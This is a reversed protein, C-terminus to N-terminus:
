FNHVTPTAAFEYRNMKPTKPGSLDESLPRYISGSHKKETLQTSWLPIKLRPLNARHMNFNNNRRLVCLTIVVSMILVALATLVFVSTISLIYSVRALNINEGDIIEATPADDLLDDISVDDNDAEDDYNDEEEEDDDDDEDEDDDDDIASDDAEGKFASLKQLDQLTEDINDLDEESDVGEDINFTMEPCIGKHLDLWGNPTFNDIDDMLPTDAIKESNDVLNVFRADLYNIVNCMQNDFVFLNDHLDIISLQPVVKMDEISLSTLQNEGLYLRKVSELITANNSWLTYLKCNRADIKNIAKNNIFNGPNLTMLPNGAINLTELNRNSNFAGTLVKLKNYSVDLLRLSSIYILMDDIFTFNNYSLNLSVITPMHKFTEPHGTTLGCNKCSFIYTEFQHNNSLTFNPLVEFANDDLIIKRLKFNFSFIENELKTLNNKSLDLVSLESMFALHNPQLNSIRNNSLNLESLSTLRSSSREDFTSLFCNKLSLSELSNSTNLYFTKLPNNDLYLSDLEGNNVFVNAPVRSIQNDTLYLTELSFLQSFATIGIDRIYNGSLNLLRLEYLKDLAPIEDLRCNGFHLEELKESSLNPSDEFGCDAVKLYKVNNFAKEDISGIQSNEIVVNELYPMSTFADEKIESIIVNSLTLVAVANRDLTRFLESNLVLSGNCSIVNVVNPLINKCECNLSKNDKKLFSHLNFVSFADCISVWVLISYHSY